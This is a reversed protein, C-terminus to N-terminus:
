YSGESVRFAAFDGDMMKRKILEAMADRDDLTVGAEKMWMELVHQDIRGIHRTDEAFHNGEQYADRLQKASKIAPNPDTTKQRIIKDEDTSWQEKM